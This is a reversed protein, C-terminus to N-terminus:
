ASAKVAKKNIREEAIKTLKEDTAKEESLTKDLLDAIKQQGATKDLSSVNGYFAIEYNEVKQASGILLEDM